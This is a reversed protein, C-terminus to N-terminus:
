KARQIKGRDGDLHMLMRAIAGSLDELERRLWEENTERRPYVPLDPNFSDLGWRLTKGAAAMVEGCEEVLYGLHQKTTRPEYQSKM